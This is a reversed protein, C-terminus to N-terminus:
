RQRRQSSTRKGRRPDRLRGVSDLERARKEYEYSDPYIELKRAYRRQKEAKLMNGAEEYADASVLYAAIVDEYEKKLQRWYRPDDTSYGKGSVARAFQADKQKKEVSKAYEAASKARALAAKPAAARRPFTAKVDFKNATLERAQRANVARVHHDIVLNRGGYPDPQEGTVHFLPSGAGWYRGYRDYGQRDIHVRRVDLKM